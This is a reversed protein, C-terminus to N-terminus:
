SKKASPAALQQQLQHLESALPNLALARRLAVRAPVPPSAAALDRWMEWNNPSKRVAERFSTRARVVKGQALQARGLLDLAEASWPAWDSATQAHAEAAPFDLRNYAARARSLPVTSLVAALALLALVGTVTPLAVRVLAPPAEEAEDRRASVILAVAAVLAVLTVGALEWDWDVAAHALFAAYTAFAGVALPQRRARVAAALPVALALVVIALGIVGLEGLVEVYLSHSDQVDGEVPRLLAWAAAYSGAGDGAIPHERFQDISVRWQTVRGNSSLDFLRGTENPGSQKTAGRFSDVARHAVTWPAGYTVVAAVAVLAVGGLAIGGVIRHARVSLHTRAAVLRFAVALLGACLALVVIWVLLSGGEASAQPLTISRETLHDSREALGVVLVPGAFLVVAAAILQLRRADLVLAALLGVALALWAGRSFTFLMTPVLIVPAAGALAQM